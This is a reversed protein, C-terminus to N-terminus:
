DYECQKNPVTSYLNRGSTGGFRVTASLGAENFLKIAERTMLEFGVPAEVGVTDKISIDKGTVEFGKIYGDVYTHAMAVIDEHPLSRLHAAIKLENSGIYMGYKYMYRDDSLDDKMIINSYYDYDPDIMSIIQESLFMQCYDHKHSYMADAISERRYKDESEIQCQGYIQLLLECYITFKDLRGSFAASIIGTMSYFVASLIGGLEQGLEKVAFAPCLFSNEYSEKSYIGFIADNDAKCEEISRSALTGDMSKNMVPLVTMVFDAVQNFYRQLNEPLDSDDKIQSIRETALEFRELIDDTEKYFTNSM